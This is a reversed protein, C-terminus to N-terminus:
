KGSVLLCCLAVVDIRVKSAIARYFERLEKTVHDNVIGSLCLVM